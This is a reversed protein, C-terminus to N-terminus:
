AALPRLFGGLVCGSTRPSISNDWTAGGDTSKFLLNDAFYCGNARITSLYLNGPNSFDILLSQPYAPSVDPFPSAVVVPGPAYFLQFASSPTWTTGADLSKLLIDRASAYVASADLPSVALASVDITNLGNGAGRWTFGGDTSKLIANNAVAYLTSPTSPDIALSNVQANAPLDPQIATWSAGGDDSQLISGFHALSSNVALYIRSSNSPDIVLSSVFAGTPLGPNLAAWTDGGDSSKFIPTGSPAMAFLLSPVAASIVLSTVSAGSLLSNPVPNWTQGSDTSRLISTQPRSNNQSVNALAYLRSPDAPDVVLSSIISNSSLGLDLAQWTTAGDSSRFVRAGVFVVYLNSRSDVVMTIITAAPLGADAATWTNGCNRSKRIRGRLVAYLTAPNQPDVALTDAGVLSSLVNWSAAGDSSKFVSTPGDSGTTRAFLTAPQGPSITISAIHTPSAPLSANLASWTAAPLAPPFFAYAIVLTAHVLTQLWSPM